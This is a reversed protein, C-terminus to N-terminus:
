EFTKEVAQRMSLPTIHIYRDTSRIDRHGMARAVLLPDKTVNHLMTAYGARFSHITLEKRLCGIAKWHEFRSQVQRATLPISPDRAPFLPWLIDVSKMSQLYDDLAARLRRPAIRVGPSGGKTKSIRIVGNKPDYDGVRLGLAEARRIGTFAYVSFLAADRKALPEGSEIIGALFHRIERKSFPSTPRCTVKGLKLEAAPNRRILERSWCWNFFSRYASKVRNVTSVDRIRGDLAPEELESIVQHLHRSKVDAVAPDSLREALRGLDLTYSEVTLPSRGRSALDKRFKHIAASLKVGPM